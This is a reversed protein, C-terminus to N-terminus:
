RCFAQAFVQSVQDDQIGTGIYMYVCIDGKGAYVYAYIHFVKCINLDHLELCTHTQTHQTQTHSLSLARARSMYMYMYMYM